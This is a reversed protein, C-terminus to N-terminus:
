RAQGGKGPMMELSGEKRGVVQRGYRSSRLGQHLNTRPEAKKSAVHTNGAREGGVACGQLGVRV